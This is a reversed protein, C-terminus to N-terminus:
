GGASNDGLQQNVGRVIGYSTGAALAGVFLTQVASWCAAKRDTGTFIAKVYGFILLTIVSIGVSTFLADYVEDFFFYPLMPILGGIFYSMGMVLASIWCKSTDPKDLKLEFDMM